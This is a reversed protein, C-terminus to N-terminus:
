SFCQTMRCSRNGSKQQCDKLALEDFAFRNVHHLADSFSNLKSLSAMKTDRCGRARSSPFHGRRPGLETSSLRTRHESTGCSLLAGFCPVCSERSQTQLLSLLTSLLSKVSFALNFETPDRIRDRRFSLM